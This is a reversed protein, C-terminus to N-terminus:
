ERLRKEEALLGALIKRAKQVELGLGAEMSPPGPVRSSSPIASAKGHGSSSTNSHTGIDCAEVYGDTDNQDAQNGGGNMYSGVSTALHLVLKSVHAIAETLKTTSRQIIAEDLRERAENSELERRRMERARTSSQRDEKVVRRRYKSATGSNALSKNGYGPGTGFGAEDGDLSRPDYRHSPISHANCKEQQCSYHHKRDVIGDDDFAPERANGEDALTSTKIPKFVANFGPDDLIGTGVSSSNSNFASDVCKVNQRPIGSLGM